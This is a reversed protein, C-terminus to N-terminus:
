AHGQHGDAPEVPVKLEVPVVQEARLGVLHMAEGEGATTKVETAVPRVADPHRDLGQSGTRPVETPVVGTQGPAEVVVRRRGLSCSTAGTTTPRVPSAPAPGAATAVAQIAEAVYAASAAPVLRPTRM